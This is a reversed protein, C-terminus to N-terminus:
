MYRQLSVVTSAGPALPPLAAPTALTAFPSSAIQVTLPGSAVPGANRVTVNVFDVDGVLMERVISSPTAV